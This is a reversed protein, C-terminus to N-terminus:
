LEKAAFVLPLGPQVWWVVLIHSPLSELLGAAARVRPLPSARVLSDFNARIQRAVDSHRFAWASASGDSRVDAPAAAAGAPSRVASGPSALPAAVAASPRLRRHPLAPM